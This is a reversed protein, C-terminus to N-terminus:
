GDNCRVGVDAGFVGDGGRPAAPELDQQADAADGRVGGRLERVRGRGAAAAAERGGRQGERRESVRANTPTTTSM